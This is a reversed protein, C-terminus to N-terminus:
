MVGSWKEWLEKLRYLGFRDPRGSSSLAPDNYLGRVVEFMASHEPSQVGLQHLAVATGSRRRADRHRVLLESDMLVAIAWGM